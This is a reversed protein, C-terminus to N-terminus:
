FGTLGILLRGHILGVGGSLIEGLFDGPAVAPRFELSQEPRKPRARPVSSRIELVNVGLGTGRLPLEDQAQTPFLFNALIGEGGEFDCCDHLLFLSGQDAVFLAVLEENEPLLILEKEDRHGETIILTQSIDVEVHGAGQVAAGASKEALNLSQVSLSEGGFLVV